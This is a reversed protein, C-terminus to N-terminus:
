GRGVKFNVQLPNQILSQAWRESSSLHNQRVVYFIFFKCISLLAKSQWLCLNTTKVSFVFLCKVLQEKVM